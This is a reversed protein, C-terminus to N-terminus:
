RVNKIAESEVVFNGQDGAGGATEAGRDGNCERLGSGCDGAM